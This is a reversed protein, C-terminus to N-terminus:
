CSNVYVTALELVMNIQSYSLTNREKSHGCIALDTRHFKAVICTKSKWLLGLSRSGDGNKYNNQFPFFSIVSSVHYRMFCSFVRNVSLIGLFFVSSNALM